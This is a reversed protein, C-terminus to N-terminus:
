MTDNKFKVISCKLDQMKEEFTKPKPVYYYVKKDEELFVNFRLDFTSDRFRSDDIIM